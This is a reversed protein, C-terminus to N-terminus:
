GAAAEPRVPADHARGSLLVRGVRKGFSCTVDYPITGALHAVEDAGIRERGDSGILTAVDGARVDPVDTVDLTTYDMSVRGVIPARHGRVLVAGRNGLRWPVGDNYGVPLTAVRTTRGAIWTGDYGVAHGPPLEKVLAVRARVSMVPRLAGADISSHPPLGYAALGIRVADYLEPHGGLVCASNAAHVWLGPGALLKRARAVRLWGDFDALQRRGIECRPGESPAVHTMVGALELYRAAQVTALLELAEDPLAGLRGMGTDVAVHVRAARRLRRAAAELERLADGCSVTAEVGYLVTSRAERPVVTGLVVLRGHLGAERLELAETCTAVAFAPGNPADAPGAAGSRIAHLATAVAGHGYADAKVVLMLATREGALDRVVRLNHEFADLDVEAWARSTDV